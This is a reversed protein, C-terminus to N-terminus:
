SMRKEGKKQTASGGKENSIKGTGGWHKSFGSRKPNGKKETSQRAHKKSKGLSVEEGEATIKGATKEEHSFVPDPRVRRAMRPPDKERTHGGVGTKGLEIIQITARPVVGGFV